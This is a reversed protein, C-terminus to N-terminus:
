HNGQCCNRNESRSYSSRNFTTTIRDNSLYWFVLLLNGRAVLKELLKTLFINNEKSLLYESENEKTIKTTSADYLKLLILHCETVDGFPLDETPESFSM